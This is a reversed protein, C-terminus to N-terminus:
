QDTLVPRSRLLTLFVCRSYIRMVITRVGLPPITWLGNLYYGNDMRNRTRHLHAVRHQIYLMSNMKLNIDCTPYVNIISVFLLILSDYKNGFRLFTSYLRLYHSYYKEVNYHKIVPIWFIFCFLLMTIKLRL